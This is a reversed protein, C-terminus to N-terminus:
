RTEERQQRPAAGPAEPGGGAPAAQGLIPCAASTAARKCVPSPPRTGAGRSTTWARHAWRVLTAAKGFGAKRIARAMRVHCTPPFQGSACRIRSGQQRDAPRSLGGQELIDRHCGAPESPRDRHCPQSALMCHLSPLSTPEPLSSPLPQSSSRHRHAGPFHRDPMALRARPPLRECGGGGGSVSVPM